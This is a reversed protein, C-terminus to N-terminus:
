AVPALLFDIDEASIGALSGSSGDLLGAILTAKRKQLELIREEITGECILKHVFVTSQQGIRHARDTAQAEAAPNWWPDYHIVTDAATLNLGTGGAKLSILFVPASGTQFNRVLDGRNQTQGTLMLHDVRAKKLRASILDLMTVFQSFVLIRRGEAALPEILDMLAELKASDPVAAAAATKLLAPHCCVQRLKLLADLIYIQSRALGSRDIEEHIRADMAARVSEYLDAQAPTLAIRQVMEVKPPLDTLVAEKTRRLFVPAIRRALLARRDHDGQKEVPTRFVVTFQDWTGLFGPMLFQFISWLEGLHNEMPTGTLCLRQTSQLRCAAQAAQTRPNKIYQAEDLVVAHFPIGALVEEDRVLLPYSTILLDCAAAEELAAARQAGYHIRVRLSPAFRAAEDRWNSLLSTPCVILSPGSATGSEKEALLHALTQVTKGLGMDDALIGGLGHRTLFQLWRWGELQYPRLTAKLSAPPDGEVTLSGSRLSDALGRLRDHTRRCLADDEEGGAFAAARLRHMPLRSGQLSKAGATLLETLNTLIRHLRSAPVPVHTRGDELPILVPEEGKAALRSVNFGDPSAALFKVLLPLLPIRAGNVEVGIDAAFWNPRATEEIDEYFYEPQVVHLDFTDDTIIEWGGARLEPLSRLFFDTWLGQNNHAVFADRLHTKLSYNLVDGCRRFGLGILQAAWDREADPDRRWTEGGTEGSGCPFLSDPAEEYRFSLLLLRITEGFPIGGYWGVYGTFPYDCLLRLVPVPVGPPLETVSETEGSKPTRLPTQLIAFETRSELDERPMYFRTAGALLAAYAHKCNRGVPCSCETHINLLNSGRVEVFVECDGRDRTTVTASIQFAHPLIARRVSYVSRLGYISLASSKLAAPLEDLWASSAMARFITIGKGKM